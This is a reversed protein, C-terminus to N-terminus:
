REVRLLMFSPYCDVIVMNANAILHQVAIFDDRSIIAEHDDHYLYQNKNM